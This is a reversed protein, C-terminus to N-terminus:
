ETLMSNYRIICLRVGDIKSFQLASIGNLKNKQRRQHSGVFSNITLKSVKGRWFNEIYSLLNIDVLGFYGWGLKAPSILIHM